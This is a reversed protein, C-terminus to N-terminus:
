PRGLLKTSRSWHSPADARRVFSRTFARPETLAKKDWGLNILWLSGLGKIDASHVGLGRKQAM